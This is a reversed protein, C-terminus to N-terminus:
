STLLTGAPFGELGHAASNGTVHTLLGVAWGLPLRPSVPCAAVCCICWLARKHSHPVLHTRIDCPGGAPAPHVCGRAWGWPHLDWWVVSGVVGLAASAHLTMCVLESSGRCPPRSCTPSGPASNEKELERETGERRRCPPPLTTPLLPGALM